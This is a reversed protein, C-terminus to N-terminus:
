QWMRCYAYGVLIADSVDDNVDNVGFIEAVKKKSWKKLEEQKRPKKGPDVLKRWETPRLTYFDPGQPEESYDDIEARVCYGCIAGLIMTLMRAAQANRSVVMEEAVIIDPNECDILNYIQRIMEPLRNKSNKMQKLNICGSRMYKGDVYIAWGTSTTSSDLSLLVTHKNQNINTDNIM